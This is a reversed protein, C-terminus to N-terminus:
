FLAYKENIAPSLGTRVPPNVLLNFLNFLVDKVPNVHFCPGGLGYGLLVQGGRFIAYNRLLVLPNVLPNLLNIFVDKLPNVLIHLGDFYYCLLVVEKFYLM